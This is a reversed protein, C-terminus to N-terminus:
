EPILMSGTTRLREHWKAAETMDQPHHGGYKEIAGELYQRLLSKYEEAACNEIIANARELDDLGRLDAFGQDTIIVDIDHESIDTHAVMPVITSINGKKSTSPLLMVSLGANQAFSAGGGIGNVVRNGCIHSSNVNGYIDAEVCSNLALIGFRSTTEAENIVDLNRLVLKNELGEINRFLEATRPTFQMYTATAAKAKGSAIMEMHSELLGGAYFEIDQYESGHMADTIAEALQGFGTQIPPLKKPGDLPYEKSLFKMLNQVTKLIEESPARHPEPEPQIDTQVIYKIKDIPAQITTQGVRENIKSFPIPRRNPPTGPLFIDHLKAVEKPIAANCEIIIKDAIEMLLPAIGISSGLYIHGSEDVACAEIIAVDIKGLKGSELLRVIRCIQQEVYHCSGNNIHKAMSKGGQLPVRRAVVDSLLEDLQSLASGSILNLSLAEGNSKRKAIAQPVARPYSSSSYGSIAVTMGNKIYMAAEEACVTHDHIWNM